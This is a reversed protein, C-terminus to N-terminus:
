GVYGMVAGLPAAVVGIARVIELSGFEGAHNVLSYINHIYGYGGAVIAALWGGVVAVAGVTKM